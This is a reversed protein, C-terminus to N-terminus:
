TPGTAPRDAAPPMGLAESLRRAALATAEGM